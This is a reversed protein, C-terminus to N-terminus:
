KEFYTLEEDKIKNNNEPQVVFILIEVNTFIIEKKTTFFQKIYEDKGSCDLINLPINNLLNFHTEEIENTPCLKLTDKGTNNQFIISKISTKGVGTKGMLLIKKSLNDEIIIKNPNEKEKEEM